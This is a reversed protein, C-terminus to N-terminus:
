DAVIGGLAKAISNAEGISAHRQAHSATPLSVAWTDGTVAVGGLSRSMKVWARLADANAFTDIGATGALPAISTSFATGGTQAIYGDREAHMTGVSYGSATLKTAIAQPDAYATHKSSCASATLAIFVLATGACAKRLLM